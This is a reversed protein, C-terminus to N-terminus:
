PAIRSLEALPRYFLAEPLSSLLSPLLILRKSGGPGSLDESRQAFNPKSPM